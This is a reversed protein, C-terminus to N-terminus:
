DTAIDEYLMFRNGDLDYFTMLKVMNEIVNIDGDIIVSKKLLEEKAAELDKVGWTLVVNGRSEHLKEVQSLGVNVKEVPSSFECWGMDELFYILEFGLVEKYWIISAEIDLVNISCTLGGDFYKQISM